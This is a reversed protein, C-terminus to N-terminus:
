DEAVHFFTLEVRASASRDRDENGVSQGVPQVRRALRQADDARDDITRALLDDAVRAASRLGNPGVAYQRQRLRDAATLEPFRGGGWKEARGM